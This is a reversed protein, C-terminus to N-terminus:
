VMGIFRLCTALVLYRVDDDLSAQGACSATVNMLQIGRLLTFCPQWRDSEANAFGSLFSPQKRVTGREASLPCM